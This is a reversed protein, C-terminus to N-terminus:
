EFLQRKATVNVESLHAINSNLVVMGMEKQQASNDLSFVDSYYHDFGLMTVSLLYAGSAVQEFLYSGDEESIVGKVLSSDAPALLLVNAFALPRNTEDSVHGTIKSQGYLCSFTMLAFLMLVSAKAIFKM